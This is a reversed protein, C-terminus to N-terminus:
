TTGARPRRHYPAAEEWLEAIRLLTLTGEILALAGAVICPVRIEDKLGAPLRPDDTRCVFLAEGKPLAPSEFFKLELSEM